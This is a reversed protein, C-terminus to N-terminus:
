AHHFPTYFVRLKRRIKRWIRENDRSKVICTKGLWIEDRFRNMVRGQYAFIFDNMSMIAGSRSAQVYIGRWVMADRCRMRKVYGDSTARGAVVHQNVQSTTRIRLQPLPAPYCAILPPHLVFLSQAEKHQLISVPQQPIGAFPSQIWYTTMPLM